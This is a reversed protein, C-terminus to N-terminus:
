PRASAAAASSSTTRWRTRLACAPTTPIRAPPAHRERRQRLALGLMPRSRGGALAHAPRTTRAWVRESTFLAQELQHEEEVLENIRKVLEADNM